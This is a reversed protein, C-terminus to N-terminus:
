FQLKLGAKVVTNNDNQIFQRLNSYVSVGDLDYTMDFVAVARNRGVTDDTMKFNGDMGRMGVYIDYPNAFEHYYMLGTKVKWNYIDKKAYMGVGSEVSYITRKQINLSYAKEEENGKQTYGIANLEVAPELTAFGLNIPYRAENTIGFIRKELYGKYSGGLGQRTYHGRAYGFRPSSVMQIGNTEYGIPTFFQVMADQRTNNNSDDTKLNTFAAGYGFRLKPTMYRSVLGYQSNSKEDAKFSFASVSGVKETIQKDNVTDFMEENLAFNLDRMASLDEYNFKSIVNKGIINNLTSTFSAANKSSKLADFLAINNGKQYNSRLFEALSRNDTMSDFSKMNMVIDLGNSNQANKEFGAEFMFSDSTVSLLSDDGNGVIAGEGFGNAVYTNENSGLVNSVGGIVSGAILHGEAEFSAGQESVYNVGDNLTVTTSIREPEVYDSYDFSEKTETGEETTTTTVTKVIQNAQAKDAEVAAIVAGGEIESCADADTLMTENIKIRGWNYVTSYQTTTTATTITAITHEEDDKKKDTQEKTFERTGVGYLATFNDANGRFEIMGTNIAMGGDYAVMGAVKASGGIDLLIDGSNIAFSNTMIGIIDFPINYNGDKLSAVIHGGKSVTNTAKIKLTGENEIKYIKPLDENAYLASFNQIGIIGFDGNASIDVVGNKENKIQSSAGLIGIIEGSLPNGEATTTLADISLIGSNTINNGAFSDPLYIGCATGIGNENDVRDDFKISLNGTNSLSGQKESFFMGVTQGFTGKKMNIFMNGENIVGGIGLANMAVLGNADPNGILNVVGTSYNAGTSGQLSGSGSHIVTISGENGADDDSTIGAMGYLASLLGYGHIYISAYRENMMIGSKLGTANLRDVETTITIRGSNDATTEHGGYVAYVNSGEAVTTESGNAVTINVESTNKIGEGDGNKELDIAELTWISDSTANNVVKVDLPANNVLTGTFGRMLGLFANGTISLYEVVEKGNEDLVPKGNEDLLVHSTTIVGNNTLLGEGGTSRMAYTGGIGAEFAHKMEGYIEIRGDNTMHDTGKDAYMGYSYFPTGTVNLSIVGNKQNEALGGNIAYMGYVNLNSDNLDAGDERRLSISGRNRTNTGYMGALTGSLNSNFTPNEILLNIKGTNVIGREPAYMGYARDAKKYANVNVTGDNTVGDSVNEAFIGYADNDNNVNITIVGNSGNYALAGAKAQIGYLNGEATDAQTLTIEGQNVASSAAKSALLTEPALEGTYSQQSFGNAKLGILDFGSTTGYVTGSNSVSAGLEATLIDDESTIETIGTHNINATKYEEADEVCVGNKLNKGEPCVCTYTGNRNEWSGGLCSPISASLIDNDSITGGSSSSGGGGGMALAAVAGGGILLGVLGATHAATWGAGGKQISASTATESYTTESLGGGLWIGESKATTTAGAEKLCPASTSAGARLLVNYARANGRQKAICLATNGDADEADLFFGRNILNRVQAVNGSNAARYFLATDSTGALACSLGITSFAVTCFLVKKLM